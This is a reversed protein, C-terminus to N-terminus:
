TVIQLGKFFSGDNIEMFAFEKSSRVTRLWGAIEVEKDLYESTQRYLQKIEIIKM